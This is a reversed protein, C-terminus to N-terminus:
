NYGVVNLADYQISGVRKIYDLVGKKGRFEHTAGLGQYVAIFMCAQRKTIKLTEMFHGRIFISDMSFGKDLIIM